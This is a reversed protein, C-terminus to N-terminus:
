GKASKRIAIEVMKRKFLRERILSNREIPREDLQMERKEFQFKLLRMEEEREVTEKYEKRTRAM